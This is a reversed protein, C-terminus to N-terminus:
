SPQRPRPSASSPTSRASTSPSRRARHVRADRRRRGEADDQRDLGRPRPRNARSLLRPLLGQGGRPREAALIPLVEERTTGPYTTSELSVLHGTRLRKGLERVASLVISLDPERNVSLPTPLAVVIADADRVADYNTTASLTGAEVLTALTESPVDEVHSEGRNITEVLEADIDVLVVPVGAEAFCRGLPLGVYGAGVIAVEPKM